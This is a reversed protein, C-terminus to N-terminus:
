EKDESEAMEYLDFLLKEGCKYKTKSKIIKGEKLLKRFLAKSVHYNHYGWDKFYQQTIIQYCAGNDLILDKNTLNVTRKGCKIEM